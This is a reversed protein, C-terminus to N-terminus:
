GGHSITQGSFPDCAERSTDTVPQPLPAIASRATGMGPTLLWGLTVLMAALWALAALPYAIDPTAFFVARLVASFGILLTTCALLRFPFERQDRQAATRVVMTLTSTGIGGITLLHLSASTPWTPFLGHAGYGILGAAMFVQGLALSKLDIGARLLPELWGSVRLLIAAGAMVSAAAAVSSEMPLLPALALAVLAGLIAAERGPRRSFREHAARRAFGSLAAELIRGGMTVILAAVALIGALIAPRELEADAGIAPMLFVVECPVLVLIILPFSLNRGRKLARAFAWAGLGTILITSALATGARLLAHGHPVALWILRALTWSGLALLGAARSTRTFLFGGMVALAYGFVLEHAHWFPSTSRPDLFIWVAVSAAADILAAAFFSRHLMIFRM